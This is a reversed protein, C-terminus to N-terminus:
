WDMEWESNDIIEPEQKAKEEKKCWGAIYFGCDKTCLRDTRKECIGTM